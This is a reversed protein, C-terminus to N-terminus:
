NSTHLGNEVAFLVAAARTTVGLKAYLNQVHNAATKPAIGLREGVQPATLGRALLRLVEIERTTLDRVPGTGVTMPSPRRGAAALVATGAEACVAGSRIAARLRAEATQATAAPRHPRPELATQWAEAAALVRAAPSLEMSRVGRFYGTGDLCEHHRGVLEAVPQMAAGARSIIREGHYPHLCMEGRETESFPAPRAWFSVPLAVEGIDHSLGARRVARIDDVPLRLLRAAEEALMAVARSHGTTHPMRMDSMDAMVLCAADIGDDDLVAGPGSDCAHLQRSAIAADLGATLRTLGAAALGALRPDYAAGSRERIKAQTADPGYADLLVLADQALTVVRVPFAVAEAKLGLPMGKGDWREYLQYLNNQIPDPLKLRVAIRQAVECHGTLISRTEGPAQALGRMVAVVMGAGSLGAHRRRLARLVVGFVENPRGSDIRAFDRRLAFEDGLLAAMQFTDANCGVYRLLAQYVCARLDDDSAGAAEALRAAVVASRLAFEQSQGLSFDTALSLAAFIDIRRVDPHVM